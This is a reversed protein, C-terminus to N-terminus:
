VIRKTPLTLHTYSVTFYSQREIGTVPHKAAGLSIKRTQTALDIQILSNRDNVQGVAYLHNQFEFTKNLYFSATPLGSHSDDALAQNFTLTLDSLNLIGGSSLWKDDALRSFSLHLNNNHVGLLKPYPLINNM